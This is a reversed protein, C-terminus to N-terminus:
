SVERVWFQPHIDANSTGAGAFLTATNASVKWQLKLQHTGPLTTIQRTIAVVSGTATNPARLCGDDGAIAAGDLTIDFFIVGNPSISAYGEFHVHMETASILIPLNLKTADVDEFNTSSTTYNSGENLTYEASHETNTTLNSSADNWLAGLWRWHTTSIYRYHLIGPYFLTLYDNDNLAIQHGAELTITNAGTDVATVKAVSLNNVSGAAGSGKGRGTTYGSDTWVSVWMGVNFSGEAAPDGGAGDDYTVTTANLGQGATGDWGAENVRAMYLSGGSAARCENPMQNHLRLTGDEKIYVHVWSDAAEDVSGSIWNGSTGLALRTSSLKNIVKMPYGSSTQVVASGAGVVIEDDAQKILQLGSRYTYPTAIEVDVVAGGTAQRLYGPGTAGLNAETGGREKGLQAESSLVGAASTIVPGATTLESLIYSGKTGNSTTQLTLDDGAGTGGILTQGGSRGALLAYQAHDDDALGALSGHDTVQSASFLTTFASEVAQASSDSKQFVVRGILLTHEEIRTPVSSPPSDTLVQALTAYEAQGYLSVLQGDADMYFYQCAYHAATLASPAGANNDYNTNDWQTNGTTKTWGGGGDRYYRDFTDAGSTDLAAIDTSVLKVWIRGATVTINRTGTEGLILGGEGDAREIRHIEYLRRQVQRLVDGAIQRHDTIHLTTGERVIEYLEFKDRENDRITSGTTTVAIQPAGGNYDLYVYNSLGDSLAVDATLAWDFPRLSATSSDSVRILGTGAAIDITGDGNDTIAGGSIYGASLGIDIIDQVTTYTPTSIVDVTVNDATTAGSGGVTGLAYWATGRWLLWVFADDSLTIDTDGPLLLNGTGHRLTITDGADAILRLCPRYTNGKVSLNTYGLSITDLNDATGTEAAIIHYEQLATVVGSSITLTTGEKLALAHCNLSNTM